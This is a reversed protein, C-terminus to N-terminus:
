SPQGLPQPAAQAAGADFVLLRGGYAAQLAAPTYVEATPGCAVVGRNLLLLHDFAQRATHLDHHVVVVTGGGDRIAQLQALILAESTADVGAFPEDLLYLEAGQALARALFVRQQQGGSLDGIRRDALASLDVRALAAEAAAHDSRRWPAWWPSHGHRGMIVVDKVTAPFDWDVASRQPVYAVGRRRAALGGGLVRVEGSAHPLLGLVAKLLTSKGAGNPGLVGTLTGRPLSFAVDRLVPHGPYGASLGTVGLGEHCRESM